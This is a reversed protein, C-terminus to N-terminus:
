SPLKVARVHWVLYGVSGAAGALGAWFLWPTALGAPNRGSAWYAAFAFFAMCAAIFFRHFAKLSM